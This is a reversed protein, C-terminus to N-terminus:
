KGDDVCRRVAGQRYRVARLQPARSAEGRACSPLAARRARRLRGVPHEARGKGRRGLRGRLHRVRIGESRTPQDGLLGPRSRSLM